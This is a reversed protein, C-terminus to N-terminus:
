GRVRVRVLMVASEVVLVVVVVADNGDNRGM